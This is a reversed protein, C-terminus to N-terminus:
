KFYNTYYGIKGAPNNIRWSIVDPTSVDRKGIMVGYGKALFTTGPTQAVKVPRIIGIKPLTDTQITYQILNFWLLVPCM